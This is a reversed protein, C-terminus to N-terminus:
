TTFLDRSSGQSLQHNEQEKIIDEITSRRLKDFEQIGKYGLVVWTAAVLFVCGLFWIDM